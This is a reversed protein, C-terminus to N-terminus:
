GFKTRPTLKKRHVRRGLAKRQHVSLLEGLQGLVDGLSAQLYREFEKEVIAAQRQNVAAVAEVGERGGAVAEGIAIGDWCQRRRWAACRRL